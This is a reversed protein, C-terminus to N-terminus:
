QKHMNNVMVKYEMSPIIFPRIMPIFTHIESSPIYIQMGEKQKRLITQIRFKRLFMDQLRQISQDDFGQTNFIRARHLNSKLSGDDMFWVALSLPTVMKAIDNPVIKKRNEYFKQGYYRFAGTGITWFWYKQYEVNGITQIKVHPKTLVLNKFIEYQWKVYDKQNISHEIRLLYTRGKNRTELHGDGLLIGVLVERQKQSLVISNALQRIKKTNM